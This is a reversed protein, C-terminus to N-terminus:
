QNNQKENTPFDFGLFKWSAKLTLRQGGSLHMKWLESHTCSRHLGHVKWFVSIVDSSLVFCSPLDLM